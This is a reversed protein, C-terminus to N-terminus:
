SRELSRTVKQLVHGRLLLAEPCNPQHSDLCFACQEALKYYGPDYSERAKAVFTWGLREIWPIPNKEARVKQQLRIIELDLKGNGEHPVLVM